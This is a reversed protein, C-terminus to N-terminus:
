LGTQKTGEAQTTQEQQQLGELVVVGPRGPLEGQRGPSVAHGEIQEGAQM